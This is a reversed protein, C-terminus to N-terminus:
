QGHIHTIWPNHPIVIKHGFVHYILCIEIDFVIGREEYNELVISEAGIIASAVATAVGVPATIGAVTFMTGILGAIYSVKNSANSIESVQEGSFYVRYGMPIKEIGSKGHNHASAKLIHSNLHTPENEELSTDSIVISSDEDIEACDLLIDKNNVILLYIRYVIENYESDDLVIIQNTNLFDMASSIQWEDTIVKQSEKAQCDNYEANSDSCFTTLTVTSILAISIILLLIKRNKM